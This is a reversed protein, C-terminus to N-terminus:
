FKLILAVNIKVMQRKVSELADTFKRIITGKNVDYTIFARNEYVKINNTLQLPTDSPILVDTLGMQYSAGVDIALPGVINCRFGLGAFADFSVNNTAISCDRIHEDTYLNYGFNNILRDICLNGYQSYVGYEYCEVSASNIVSNLPIYPKVGLQLYMSFVRSFRIDFDLYLPITLYSIKASQRMGKLEYYREYTDRDVDANSGASYSYNFNDISFDIKTDSYAAGLFIGVKFIGKSPIIYGLDVGYELASSAISVADKGTSYNCNYTNGIPFDIHPKVRWRTPIYKFTYVNDCSSDKHEIKLKVDMDKYLFQPTSDEAIFQGYEDYILNVGNYYVDEDRNSMRKVVSYNPSLRPRNSDINGKIGVISCKETRKHMAFKIVISYDANYYNKSSFQVDCGTMFDSSKKCELDMYWYTDDEYIDKKNVDKLIVQAIIDDDACYQVYDRVSLYENQSYGILDNYIKVDENIFLNKFSVRSEYDYMNSNAEYANLLEWVKKNFTREISLPISEAIAVIPM